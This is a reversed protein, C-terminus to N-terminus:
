KIKRSGLFKYPTTARDYKELHHVRDAEDLLTWTTTNDSRVQCDLGAPASIGCQDTMIYRDHFKQGGPHMRWLFIEFRHSHKLLKPLNRLEREWADLRNEVSEQHKYDGTTVPDRAHIRIRGELATDGRQGLLARCLKVTRFFREEHCTMYPDILTLARAHRLVPTLYKRYDAESQTLTISRQRNQWRASDLAGNLKIFPKDDHHGYRTLLEEGLVIGHLPSRRHSDLALELWELDDTPDGSKRRAHKVLRKRDKLLNLCAIIQHKSNPSLKELRQMIHQQWRGKNLNALLGNEAVGRLLQILTFSLVPDHNLLSADFTDPTFAFEYLM